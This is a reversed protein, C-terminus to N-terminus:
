SALFVFFWASTSTLYLGRQRRSCDVGNNAHGGSMAFATSGNSRGEAEANDDKGAAELLRECPVMRSTHTWFELYLLIDREQFQACCYVLMLLYWQYMISRDQTGTIKKRQRNMYTHSAVLVFDIPEHYSRYTYM